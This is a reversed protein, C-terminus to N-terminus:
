DLTLRAQEPKHDPMTLTLVVTAGKTAKFTGTGKLLNPGAPTLTVTEKKGNSLVVASAKADKVDEPKGHEDDVYIELSGDKAVVELHHHGSEIAYGGHKAEVPHDEHAIAASTLAFVAMAVVSSFKLM